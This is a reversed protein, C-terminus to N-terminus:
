RPRRVEESVSSITADSPPRSPCRTFVLTSMILSTFALLHTQPPPKSWCLQGWLIPGKLFGFTIVFFDCSCSVMKFFNYFQLIQVTKLKTNEIKRIEVCLYSLPPVWYKKKERLHMVFRQHNQGRTTVATCQLSAFENNANMTGSQNANWRKKLM